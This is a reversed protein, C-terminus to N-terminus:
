NPVSVFITSLTPLTRLGNRDASGLFEVMITTDNGFNEFCKRYVIKLAQKYDLIALNDTM